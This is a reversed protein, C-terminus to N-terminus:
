TTENPSVKCVPRGSNNPKTRLIHNKPEQLAWERRIRLPVPQKTGLEEDGNEWYGLSVTMGELGYMINM